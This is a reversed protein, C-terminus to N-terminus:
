TPATKIVFPSKVWRCITWTNFRTTKETVMPDCSMANLVSRERIRSVHQNKQKVASFIAFDVCEAAERVERVRRGVCVVSDLPVRLGGVRRVAEVPGSM